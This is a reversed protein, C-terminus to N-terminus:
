YYWKPEVSVQPCPSAQTALVDIVNQKMQRNQVGIAEVLGWPFFQHVLFEAQKERKRDPEMVTNRWSWSAIVKWNVCTSLDEQTCFFQSWAEVAHGDTFCWQCSSGIVAGVSSVLYLIKGQGDTYDPVQNKHIAYLMPSRNAFYFPVYDALTGGAALPVQKGARRQKLTSYAIEQASIKQEGLKSSAWMGGSHIIQPLNKIHTIHYIKTRVM